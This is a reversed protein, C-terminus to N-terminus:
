VSWGSGGRYSLSKRMQCLSHKKLCAGLSCSNPLRSSHTRSSSSIPAFDTFIDQLLRTWVPGIQQQFFKQLHEFFTRFSAARAALLRSLRRSGGHRHRLTITDPRKHHFRQAQLRTSMCATKAHRFAHGSVFQCYTLPRRFGLRGFWLLFLKKGTVTRQFMNSCSRTTEL